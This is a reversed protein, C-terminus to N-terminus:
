ASKKNKKDDDKDSTEDAVVEGTVGAGSVIIQSAGELSYRSQIVHESTQGTQAAVPHVSMLMPYSTQAQAATALGLWLGAILAIRQMM